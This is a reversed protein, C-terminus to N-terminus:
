IKDEQNFNAKMTLPLLKGASLALDKDYFM